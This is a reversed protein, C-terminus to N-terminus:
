RIIDWVLKEIRKQMEDYDCVENNEFAPMLIYDDFEKTGPNWNGGQCFCLDGNERIGLNDIQMQSEVLVAIYDSLKTGNPLEYNGKRKDIRWTSRLKIIQMFNKRKM